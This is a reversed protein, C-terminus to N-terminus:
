KSFMGEPKDGAIGDFVGAAICTLEGTVREGLM